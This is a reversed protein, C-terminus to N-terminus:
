EGVSFNVLIQSIEGSRRFVSQSQDFGLRLEEATETRGDAYEIQLQQDDGSRYEVSVGCISFRFIRNGDERAVLEDSEFLSPAFEMRGDSISVGLEVFRWLIDEKVQGTMGPQQAGAHAPTHSYAEFPFAGYLRPSKEAGLGDRIERFYRALESKTQETASQTQALVHNEAVALVLKSVMHWYISGLGEYAFFTGSRGTFRHHCFTNEFISGVQLASERNAEAYRGSEAIREIADAVDNANRFDGNFRFNGHADCRVISEDGAALMAKLLESQNVLGKPILNKDVFRPLDRDPYLLYSQQDERYLRSTRLGQLLAVCEAPELLGSSLVAVQGELMEDLREIHIEGDIDRSMLNYSHYLQDARRNARITSSLLRACEGFFETLEALAIDSKQGSFGNAYIGSRYESGAAVLDAVAQYRQAPSTEIDGSVVYPGIALRIRNMWRVVEEAIPASEKNSGDLWKALFVCYRHLYCTTVMSMGNGVLANNADNWEPRQTNLWIGGGPVFSSLKALIPVLIKECLSATQIKGSADHLLKGDTGLQAVREDITRQHEFDYDVTDCPDAFIQDAPKIRYPVDAYVFIGSELLADLQGPFCDNAREMLRCLYIIQHDGWYGINSWSDDAEEIEWEFGEKTLRYPNHGDATSANVFRAIMGALLNPWSVSLAEWNQFIDRWNGQYSFEKEDGGVHSEIAFQNWPRTPDGHRRSYILPLYETAVRQLDIDQLESVRNILEERNITAPLGSLFESQRQSCARNLKRVHRRFDVTDIQYNDLPIGGRMINFIVNSQHRCNRQFNAGQQVGDSALVLDKLRAESSEIEETLASARDGSAIEAVLQVLDSQDLNINAVINWEKREDAALQFKCNALWAGRRGRVDQEPEVARGAIFDNLQESSLLVQEPTLDSWVVTARLGESPEARDTPASSLYYVGIGPEILESKKYADGLNSYRLQFQQDIGAPLLNQLGDILEIERIDDGINHLTSSRLFGSEHSFSWQYRFVLQLRHHVEEFCLRNGLPTRYLNRSVPEDGVLNDHFPQWITHSDSAAIRIVTRPGTVQRTDGIRDASMYPFLSNDANKRGATLAGASSVFMWHDSSSIMCIFFEPMLHSDAIRFWKEGDREVWYSTQTNFCVSGTSNDTASKQSSM